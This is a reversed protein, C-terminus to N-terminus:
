DIEVRGRYARSGVERTANRAGSRRCRSRMEAAIDRWEPVAGPDQLLHL